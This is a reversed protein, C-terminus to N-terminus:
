GRWRRPRGRRRRIRRVARAQRARQVQRAQRAQRAQRRSRDRQALRDPQAWLGRRVAQSSRPGSLRRAGKGTTPVEPPTQGVAQNEPQRVTEQGPRIAGFPWRRAPQARASTATEDPPPRGPPTKGNESAGCPGGAGKEKPTGRWDGGDKPSPLRARNRRSPASITATGVSISPRCRAPSSRIANRAASTRSSSSNGGLRDAGPVGEGLIEAAAVVFETGVGFGM